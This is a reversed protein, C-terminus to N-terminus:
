SKPRRTKKRVKEMEHRMRGFRRERDRREALTANAHAAERQLKRYSELRRADLRGERMAATVACGAEAQHQCDRFKCMAALQEIDEFTAHVGVAADGIRLERMGPTDILWAGGPMRVLQRATTTHRGKSDDERIAATVQREIGLLTNILTSKGVGSSGVFAVTQGAALWPALSDASARDRADIAVVTALPAVLQADDIRQGVNECADAKTLVVVPTVAAQYAIALYRELRSLNFDDNCSMVIFLTDVNSAILQRRAEIGAAIRQLCSFPELRREVRDTARDILLWDGVAISESLKADTSPARVRLEGEEGLVDLRDRHVSAVRMPLFASLEELSVQQSHSARWGLAALRSHDFSM